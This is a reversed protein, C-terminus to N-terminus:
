GKAVPFNEDDPRGPTPTQDQDQSGDGFDIGDFDSDSLDDSGQDGLQDLQGSINPDDLADSFGQDNPDIGDLAVQIAPDDLASEFSKANQGTKYLQKLTWVLLSAPNAGLMAKGLDMAGGAFDMVGPDWDSLSADPGDVTRGGLGLDIVPAGLANNAGVEPGAISPFGSKESNANGSAKGSTLGSLLNNIVQTPTAALPSYSQGSGVRGGPSKQEAM